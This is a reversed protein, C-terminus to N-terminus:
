KKIWKQGESAHNIEFFKVEASTSPKMLDTMWNEWKEDGVMAVKEFKNAYQVDFKL